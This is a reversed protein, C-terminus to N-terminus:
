QLQPVAPAQGNGMGMQAMDMGPQGQMAPDVMQNAAPPMGPMQGMQQPLLKDIEDPELDTTKTLFLRTLENQDIMPNGVMTSYIKTYEETQKERMQNSTIDLEVRPEYEGVYEVPDFTTDQSGPTPVGIPADIFLKVMRFVLKGLEHYGDNEVQAVKVAFRQGAQALQANVETATINGTDQQVGKTIESAATTERIETKINMRENFAQPPVMGTPIPNLTGAEFPYVAGPLNEIKDIYDAYKPDITYMQNLSFTIADTNQNTLDNLLEQAPLIPEVEGKGYFLSDDYYDRQVIFPVIGKPNKEKRYMAQVKYPNPKEEILTTRNAVSYCKDKTWYEIVEIQEKRADGSLTSGLWQDKEERDTNDGTEADSVINDLNQYRPKLEGTQVDVVEVEQLQAKTTLFRRGAYRADEMSTATPDVFFDRLPINLLRPKDIDWYIYMVGTGYTLMSRLWISVKLNWKDCDWYYDLLQNLSRTDQTQGPRIPVYNFKPKGTALAAVMTEITSFTIPVFTNTVGQYGENVRQNNYLKWCNQWTDHYSGSVYDWHQSFDGVVKSVKDEQAQTTSKAM